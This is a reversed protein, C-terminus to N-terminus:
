RIYETKADTLDQHFSSNVKWKAYLNNPTEGCRSLDRSASTRPNTDLATWFQVTAFTPPHGFRGVEPENEPYPAKQLM